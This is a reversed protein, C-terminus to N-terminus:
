SALLAKFGAQQFHHDNTLAESVGYEKMIEFSICDTLSWSKDRRADYLRLGQEFQPRSAPIITVLPHASIFDYFPLMKHRNTPKSLSNGVENLVWDTTILKADLQRLMCVAESHFRDTRSLLAFFFSTDAFQTKM